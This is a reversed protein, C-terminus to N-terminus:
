EPEAIKSIWIASDIFKLHQGANVYCLRLIKASVAAQVGPDLGDWDARLIFSLILKGEDNPNFDGNQDFCSSLNVESTITSLNHRIDVLTATQSLEEGSLETESPDTLELYLSRLKFRDSAQSQVTILGAGDSKIARAFKLLSDEISKRDNHNGIYYWVHSALAFDAEPPIYAPDEFPIVAYDVLRPSVLSDPFSREVAQLAERFQAEMEASPDECHVEFNAYSDRAQLFRGTLPLEIGGNGAGVYLVSFPVTPDQLRQWLGPPFDKLWELIAEQTRVKQNTNALFAGFRESHQRFAAQEADSQGLGENPPTAGTM